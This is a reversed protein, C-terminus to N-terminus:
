DQVMTGKENHNLNVDDLLKESGLEVMVEIQIIGYLNHV